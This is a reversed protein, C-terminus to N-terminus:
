KSQVHLPKPGALVGDLSIGADLAKETEDLTLAKILYHIAHHKFIEINRDSLEKIATQYAPTLSDRFVRILDTIQRRTPLHGQQLLACADYIVQIRHPVTRNAEKRLTNLDKATPLKIGNLM